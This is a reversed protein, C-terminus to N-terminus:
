LLKNAISARMVATVSNLARPALVHDKVSPEDIDFMGTHMINDQGPLLGYEYYKNKLSYDYLNSELMNIYLTLHYKQGTNAIRDKQANLPYIKNDFFTIMKPIDAPNLIVLDRDDIMAKYCLSNLKCPVRDFDQNDNTPYVDNFLLKTKQEVAEVATKIELNTNSNTITYLPYFDNEGFLQIIQEVYSPYPYIDSEENPIPKSDNDYHGLDLNVLTNISDSQLSILETIKNHREEILKYISVTDDKTYDARGYGGIVKNFGTFLNNIDLIRENLKATYADMTEKRIGDLGELGEYSNQYVNLGYRQFVSAMNINHKDRYKEIRNQTNTIEKGIKTSEKDEDISKELNRSLLKNDIYTGVGGGAKIIGQKQFKAVETNYISKIKSHENEFETVANDFKNKINNYDRERKRIKVLKDIVNQSRMNKNVLDRNKQINKVKENYSSETQGVLNKNTKIHSFLALLPDIVNKNVHLQFDTLSHLLANYSKKLRTERRKIKRELEITRNWIKKNFFDRVGGAGTQCKKTRCRSLKNFGSIKKTKM